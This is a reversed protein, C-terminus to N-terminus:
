LAGGLVANDVRAHYQGALKAVRDDIAAQQKARPLNPMSAALAELDAIALVGNERRALARAIEPQKDLGAATAVEALTVEDLYSNIVQLKVAAGALHGGEGGVLARIQPYIERYRIERKGTRAVVHDAESPTPALRKGMSELFAEDVTAKSQKRQQAVLHSRAAATAGAKWYTTLDARLAPFEAENALKREVVLVVGWGVQLEIPGIVKGPPTDLSFAFPEIAPDLQARKLWGSTGDPTGAVNTVSKSIEAEWAGGAALRKLSARAEDASAFVAMRVRATDGGAHFMERLQAETPSLKSSIQRDVFMASLARTREYSVRAVVDPKAALGTKRAETALLLEAKMADGLQAVTPTKGGPRFERAFDRADALTYAAGDVTVAVPDAGLTLLLLSELIV